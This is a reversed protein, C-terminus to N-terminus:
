DPRKRKLERDLPEPPRKLVDELKEIARHPSYDEVKYDRIAEQIRSKTTPDLRGGKALLDAALACVIATALRAQAVADELDERTM